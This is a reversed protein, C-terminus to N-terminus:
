GRGLRFAAVCQAAARAVKSDFLAYRLASGMSRSPDFRDRTFRIKGTSEDVAACIRSCDGLPMAYRRVAGVVGCEVFWEFREAPDEVQDLDASVADGARIESWRCELFERLSSASTTDFDIHAGM